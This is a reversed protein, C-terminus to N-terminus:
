RVARHLDVDPFNRQVDVGVPRLVRRRDDEQVADRTAAACVVPQRRLDRAPPAEETDVQAAVAPGAVRPPGVVDVAEAPIDSLDHPAHRSARDDQNPVRKAAHRRPPPRLAM